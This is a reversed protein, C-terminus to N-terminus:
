YVSDQRLFFTNNWHICVFTWTPSLKLVITVFALVIITLSSVFSSMCTYVAWGRALGLFVKIAWLWWWSCLYFMKKQGFLFSPHIKAFVITWNALNICVSEHVQYVGSIKRRNLMGRVRIIPRYGPDAKIGIMPSQSRASHRTRSRGIIRFIRNWLAWVFIGTIIGLGSAARLKWVTNLVNGKRWNKIVLVLDLFLDQSSGSLVLNARNITVLWVFSAAIFRWSEELCTLAVFVKSLM